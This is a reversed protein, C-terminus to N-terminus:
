AADTIPAPRAGLQPQLKSVYIPSSTIPNLEEEGWIAIRAEEGGALIAQKLPELAEDLRGAKALYCGLNYRYHYQTLVREPAALEITKLQAKIANEFDGLKDLIYAEMGTAWAYSRELGKVNMAYEQVTRAHNLADRFTGLKGQSTDAWKEAVLVSRITELSNVCVISCSNMDDQMRKETAAMQQATRAEVTKVAAEAKLNATATVSKIANSLSKWGLWSLFGLAISLIGAAIGFVWKVTETTERSADIAYKAIAELNAYEDPHSAVGVGPPPPSQVGGNSNVTSATAPNLSAPAQDGTSAADGATPPMWAVICLFLSFVRPFSGIRPRSGYIEM